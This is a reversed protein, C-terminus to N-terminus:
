AVPSRHGKFFKDSVWGSVFSGVVALLPVGFALTVFVIRPPHNMDLGLQKEFYLVSLQDSSHRVSGTCAYAFAYWWVLPPKFVTLFSERISTRTSVDNSLEDHILGPYGAAAPSEKPIFAVLLAMTATFIPPIIFLWRWNLSPLLWIQYSQVQEN